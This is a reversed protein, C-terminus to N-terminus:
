TGSPCISAVILRDQQYRDLDPPNWHEGERVQHFRFTANTENAGIICRVATPEDLGHVLRAFRLTFNLGYLLLTRQDAEDIVPADNVTAADVPVFDELHFSSDSCEWATLDPFFSPAGEANGASDAWTLVQGRRVIGLELIGELGPTSVERQSAASLGQYFGISPWNEGTASV